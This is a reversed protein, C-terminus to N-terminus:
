GSGLLRVSVPLSAPLLGEEGTRVLEALDVVGSGNLRHPKPLALTTGKWFEAEEAAFSGPAAAKALGRQGMFLLAGDEASRVFAILNEARAGQVPVAEYGGLFVDPREQRLALMERILAQKEVSRAALAQAREEYDVPRRNDPDVLSLDAFEAGQYLDPVGPASYHLFTQALSNVRRRPELTEVFAHIDRRLEKLTPGTMLVYILGALREEYEEDPDTWSSRLKAERVAKVQWASLREAYGRMAAGDAPEAGEPWAGVVMQLLMYLDGADVGEATQGLKKRWADSAEIWEGPVQSLVALRARVDEGRKHDHTATALMSAPWHRAREAQAQHFGHAGAAFIEADFGVDNRSLLRGYRYFATDEVGKAAIPASLQQFRRVAEGAHDQAPGEGALWALIHEAVEAEGLAVVERLHARVRERVAADSPPSGGKAGYTRYVPFIRLLAEVARFWMLRTYRATQPSRQALALFAEASAAYQAGFEWRMIEGRAQREEAEFAAPRGSLAVWHETLPAEGAPDHLVASVQDMFEYGTTGDIPWDSPLAEGPGLIKEVVLYAPGAPAEAPRQPEEETLRHRLRHLYAAPDALGDVHDIRLGDILGERYLRLPLEHVADFVEPEEVRLGALESISFFRRWNLEDHGIRWWALRYKQNQVLSNLLERGIRNGENFSDLDNPSPATKPELPYHQEGYLQIVSRGDKEALRLDGAAIVEDLPAGLVPLLLRGKHRSWDIDFFRAYRSERGHQLVDAWWPNEPSAAMHNPVIDVIAGMDRARLAAALSRFADDGGLEPNIRTPDAVDYGHSSGATAATIPSAYVHSIGLDHLYPVIAEADAFTFDAHFQLRYTARPTM